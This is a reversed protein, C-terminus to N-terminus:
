SNSESKAIRPSTMWRSNSNSCRQPLDNFIDKQARGEIEILHVSLKTSDWEPISSRCYPKQGEFTRKACPQTYQPRRDFNESNVAGWTACQRRLTCYIVLQWEAGKRKKNRCVWKESRYCDKVSQVFCIIIRGWTELIAARWNLRKPYIAEWDM